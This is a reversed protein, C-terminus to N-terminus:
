HHTPEHESRNSVNSKELLECVEADQIQPFERYYCGVARFPEPQMLCVVEDAIKGFKDVTQPPAVPVAVIVRQAQQKRAALVAAHMTSGTALGDDVLIVTRGTLPTPPRGSRYTLAQRDLERQEARAAADITPRSILLEKVVQDNLVEVGGAAIAGMALEEQGPTGLKRVPLVDLPVRLAAAVEYGVPVGGRPLALVVADPRGQYESLEVALARGAEERNEFLAHM